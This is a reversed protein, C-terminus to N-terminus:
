TVWSLRREVRPEVRMVSICNYEMVKGTKMVSPKGTGMGNDLM